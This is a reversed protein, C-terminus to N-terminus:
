VVSKRDTFQQKLLPNGIVINLPDDNNRLPQLQDITPQTTYGNISINLNNFSTIKYNFNARPFFNYYNYKRTTDKVLDSQQFATNAINGGFSFNYKKANYRFNAGLSNTLYIYKFENSLSDVLYTYKSNIDKNYSLRKQVSNSNNLSYNLELYSKESLPETYTAKAGLSNSQSTNLKNQDTTDKRIITNANDYFNSTNYLFGNNESGKYKEEVSVSITRGKKKFKKRYLLSASLNEYDQDSSLNRQSSNVLKNEESLAESGFQSNSKTNGINGNANVKLSSSSDLQIEFLGSLSNRLKDSHSTSNERNYYLSDELINQRFTNGASRESLKNVLYNAGTNYKDNNWKNSFHVGGKISEPLGSGSYGQAGLDDGGSGTIFIAGSGDDVQINSNGFGYSSSEQFNLGTQDTSSTIAFASWKRKAKFANILAQVNYYKDLAGASLKGFYGRKADDKTQLNITKTKQGDDIGTFEAQDSKKDFVQVKNIADARLNRTAITPDDSFFEEGDVLVKQVKQGQATIQGNKDVQIGPLEKLLDEVTANPKVYFSDATFETTDGKIRIAQQRIIIEELLKSKQTLYITNLNSNSNENLSIKDVYDGYKPYTILVLYDGAKLPGVSFNGDNDSRDFSVLTSDKQNLISIVAHKSKTNNSSDAVTGKIFSNQSFSLQTWLFLLVSIPIIKHM